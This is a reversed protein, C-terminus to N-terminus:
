GVGIGTKKRLKAARVFRGVLLTRGDFSDSALDTILLMPASQTGLARPSATSRATFAKRSFQGNLSYNAFLSLGRGVVGGAAGVASRDM